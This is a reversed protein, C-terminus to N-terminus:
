REDKTGEALNLLWSTLKECDIPSITGGLECRSTDNCLVCPIDLISDITAPRRTTVLRYTWRGKQLERERRILGRKELRLAVRSGERSNAKLQQWLDRQLVGKKGANIVLRLAYREPDNRKQM